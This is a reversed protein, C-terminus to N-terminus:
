TFGQDNQIMNFGSIKLLGRYQIDYIDIHLAIQTPLRQLLHTACTAYKPVLLQRRTEMIQARDNEDSNCIKNETVRLVPWHASAAGYVLRALVNQHPATYDPAHV